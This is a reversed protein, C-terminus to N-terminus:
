KLLEDLLEPPIVDCEEMILHQTTNNPSQDLEESKFSKYLNELEESDCKILREMIKEKNVKKKQRFNNNYVDYIHINCIFDFNSFKGMNHTTIIGVM